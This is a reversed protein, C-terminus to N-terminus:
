LSSCNLEIGYYFQAVTFCFIDKWMVTIHFIVVTFIKYYCLVLTNMRWPVATMTSSCKFLLLLLTTYCSYSDFSFFCSSVLVDPSSVNCYHSSNPSIHKMRVSTPVPFPPPASSSFFENGWWSPDVSTCSLGIQLWTWSSDIRVGRVAPICATNGGCWSQVVACTMWVCQLGSHKDRHKHQLVQTKWMSWRQLAATIVAAARRIGPRSVPSVECLDQHCLSLSRLMLITLISVLWSSQDVSSTFSVSQVRLWTCFIGVKITSWICKYM